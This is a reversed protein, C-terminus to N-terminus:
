YYLTSAKAGSELYQLVPRFGGASSTALSSNAIALRASYSYGRVIRRVNSAVTGVVDTLGNLPTEKCTTWMESHHWINNDGKAIKGNLDSSVIYKDWENNVPWGGYGKDTLSKNRNADAYANGGSISRILVDQSLTVKKGEIMMATNLTDWAISHQVVRDAILLGKDAKIFYFLGDPTASATAPIDNATCSGIESFTGVVGSTASKYRVPICDGISMDTITSKQTLKPHILYGTSDMDIADIDYTYSSGTGGQTKITTADVFIKLKHFGSALGTKEYLLAQYITSAGYANYREIAGDDIQVAIGNSRSAGIAGLIRIKTGYFKIDLNQFQTALDVLGLSIHYVGNYMNANSVTQWAGTYLIRTDSDDYRRWGTEPATLAQGVTAM